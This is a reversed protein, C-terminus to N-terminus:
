AANKKELQLIKDRERPGIARGEKALERDLGILLHRPSLSEREARATFLAALVAFKIQAGTVDATNSLLEIAAALSKACDEDVLGTILKTWLERQLTFDPPTLEVHYRIRRLFASDINSKLNTALIAIGPYSEIAQLLFATDTNAFRDQADRIESSRRAFLADAEDFFLVADNDAAVRIVQETNKATEGVWKSVLQAVNVRCLDKTLHAAIVQSAMTKGTGSPGSFLAVLGRGQPFLRRAEEQQWFSVREEAEFAISQLVKKVAEPLVLDDWSFPCELIQALNGFRSRASERVRAAAEEPTQAGLHVARKIDGPWVSHHEALKRVEEAPWKAAIPSSERWLNERTSAEPISLRVVKDVVGNTEAPESGPECLVFQLPFMFQNAPWLQRIPAVGKWGLVKADLFAQRQAHLFVRRWNAEDTSDVQVTLLSMGLEASVTAAFDQKGGGSPAVVVVRMRIREESALSQKIWNLVEEFPWEPLTANQSEVIAAPGILLEDLSSSGELWEKIHPDCVLALPEGVGTDRRQILEWRFVNIEPSWNAQGNLRLLRAALDETLYTRGSHDQLYACARSLSSDVAVAAALKLLDVEQSSLGLVRALRAFRSNELEDLERKLEDAEALWHRIPEQSRAWEMESDLSDQDALIGALEAHTVTARGDISGDNIWLHQLWAGRCRALLRFWALLLERERASSEVPATQYEVPQEAPKRKRKRSARTGKTAKKRTAAKGKKSPRKTTM